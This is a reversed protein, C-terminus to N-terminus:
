FQIRFNSAPTTAPDAHSVGIPLMLIGPNQKLSQDRQLRNSRVFICVRTDLIKFVGKEGCWMSQEVFGRHYLRSLVFLLAM